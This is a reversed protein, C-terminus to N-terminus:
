LKDAYPLQYTNAHSQSASISIIPPVSKDSLLHEIFKDTNGGNLEGDM